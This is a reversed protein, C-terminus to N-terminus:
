FKISLTAEYIRPDGLMLVQQDPSYSRKVAYNTINKVIANLSWRNSSSNFSMSANWLFYDEQRGYGNGGSQDFILDFGSKYQMDIHPTLVGYSGIDFNHEYSATMSFESANPAIRGDYNHDPFFDTYKYIFRLYTWKMDLYSFSLDVLDKASAVWSVSADIGITSADGWGNFGGDDVSYLTVGDVVNSRGQDITDWYTTGDPYTVNKKQTNDYFTAGHPFTHSKLEEETYNGRAPSDQAFKNIYDYYYASANLQVTNHLM